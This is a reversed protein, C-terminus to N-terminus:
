QTKPRIKKIFKCFSLFVGHLPIEGVKVLDMIRGCDLDMATRQSTTQYEVLWTDRMVSCRSQIMAMGIYWTLQM